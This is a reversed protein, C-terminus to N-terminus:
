PPLSHPAGCAASAGSHGAPLSVSWGPPPRPPKGLPGPAPGQSPFFPAWWSSLPLCLPCSSPLFPFLLSPALFAAPCGQVSSIFPRTAPPLLPLQGLRGLTGLVTGGVPAPDVLNSHQVCVAGSLCFSWISKYLRPPPPSPSPLIHLMSHAPCPLLFTGQWHVLIILLSLPFFDVRCAGWWRM